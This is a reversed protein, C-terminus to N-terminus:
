FPRDDANGVDGTAAEAADAYNVKVQGANISSHFNRAAEYIAKSQVKGDLAFHVGYWSGRDNSEKVTTIRIVNAFTPAPVHRGDKVVTQQNLLSMLLKSKKIQTSALSMLVQAPTGDKGLTLGFHSRTDTVRDCRKDDVKGDELPFFLRNEHEVLKGDNRLQSVEEPLLEGRFGQQGAGGRPAWRLFRRQYVCPVFRVGERGDFLEGTVTNLFMGAKAGEIPKTGDVEPSNSQLVKLFPIAFAEAGAGEMGAGADAAFDISDDAMTTVANSTAAMLAKSEDQPVPNAAGEDAGTTAAAGRRNNTM